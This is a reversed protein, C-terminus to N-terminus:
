DCLCVDDFICNDFCFDSECFPSGGSAGELLEADLEIDADKLVNLIEAETRCSKVKAKLEDSLGDYFEKRTM